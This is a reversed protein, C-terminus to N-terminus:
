FEAAKKIEDEEQKEIVSKEKKHEHEDDKDDEDKVEWDKWDDRDEDENGNRWKGRVFSEPKSKHTPEHDLDDHDDESNLFGHGGAADASVKRRQEEAM